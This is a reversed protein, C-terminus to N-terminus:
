DHGDAGHGHLVDGFILAGRNVPFKNGYPGDYRLFDVHGDMYLVNAGGPAHNFHTAKTEIGDWMVPIESKAQASTAANNIDTIFFREIGDRLRYVTGRGGIAGEHLPWDELVRWPQRIMDDKLYLANAELRQFDVEEQLMGDHIAWGLYIHPEGIVSCPEVRGTNAMDGVIDRWEDNTTQGEDWAALATPGGSWSPCILTDLDSLYEPFTADIDFIQQWPEALDHAGPCTWIKMHPYMDRNENAYM